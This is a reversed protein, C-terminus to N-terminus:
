EQKKFVFFLMYVCATLASFNMLIVSLVTYSGM